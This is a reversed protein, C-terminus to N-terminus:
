LIDRFVRKKVQNVIEDIDDGSLDNLTTIKDGLGNLSTGMSFGKQGNLMIWFRDHFCDSLYVESCIGDKSLLRIAEDALRGNFHTSTIFLTRKAKTEKISNVLIDLYDDSYYSDGPFIYSDILLLTDGALQISRIFRRFSKYSGLSKYGGEMKAADIRDSAPDISCVYTLIVPEIDTDEISIPTRRFASSSM